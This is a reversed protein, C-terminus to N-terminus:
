PQESTISIKGVGLFLDVEYNKSQFYIGWSESATIAYYYTFPNKPKPAYYDNSGFVFLGPLHLLSDLADLAVPVADRDALFDGTSIVLDPKLAAFSKIDRIETSRKPTLHLDSFHLVRIPEHGAPLVPLSAERLRYSMPM